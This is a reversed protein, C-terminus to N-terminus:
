IFQVLILTMYLLSGNFIWYINTIDAAIYISTMFIFIVLYDSAYIAESLTNTVYYWNVLEM